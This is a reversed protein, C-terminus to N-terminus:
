KECRGVQYEPRGGEQMRGVGQWVVTAGSVGQEAGGLRKERSRTCDPRASEGGFDSKEGPKEETPPQIGPGGQVVLVDPGSILRVTLSTGMLKLGVSVDKNVARRRRPKPRSKPDVCIRM